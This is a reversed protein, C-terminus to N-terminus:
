QAFHDSTRSIMVKHQHHAGPGAVQDEVVQRGLNLEPRPYRIAPDAHLHRAVASHPRRSATWCCSKQWAAPIMIPPRCALAGWGHTQQTPITGARDYGSIYLYLYTELTTAERRRVEAPAGVNAGCIAPSLRSGAGATM